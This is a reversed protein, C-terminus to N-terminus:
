LESSRNQTADKITKRRRDSPGNRRSGRGNSRNVITLTGINTFMNTQKQVNEGVNEGVERHQYPKSLNALMKVLMRVNSCMNANKIEDNLDERLRTKM